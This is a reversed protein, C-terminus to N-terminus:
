FFGQAFTFCSKRFRLFHRSQAIPFKIDIRSFKNPRFFGALDQSDGGINFRIFFRQQSDDNIFVFVFYYFRYIVGHVSFFGTINFVSCLVIVPQFM